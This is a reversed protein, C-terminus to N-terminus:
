TADLLMSAQVAPVKKLASIKQSIKGEREREKVRKRISNVLDKGNEKTIGSLLLVSLFFYEFLKLM